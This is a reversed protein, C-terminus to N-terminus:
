IMAPFELLWRLRGPDFCMFEPLTFSVEQREFEQDDLFVVSDAGINLEEIIKRVSQSKNNWNIQPFLFYEAIGMEELRAMATDYDNRSAISQLIGRSDIVKLAHLAEERLYVDGELLTGDWLTDDLDWVVCKIVKKSDEM